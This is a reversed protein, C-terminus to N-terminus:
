ALARMWDLAFEVAVAAHGTLFHDAGPIDLVSTTPWGAVLQRAREPPSFQDHEPLLVLKPRVDSAVVRAARDVLMLPPAVLCWGTIRPDGVSTAIDAGFSYGVVFLSGDRWQSVTSLVSEVDARAVLPDASSFDFRAASIGANPLTGYFQEVVHNHRDGGM